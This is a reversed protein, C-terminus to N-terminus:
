KAVWGISGSGSEKVWFTIGAGGLTSMALGGPESAIVGEPSGELYTIKRAGPEGAWRRILFEFFNSWGRSRVIGSRDVLADRLNLIPVPM